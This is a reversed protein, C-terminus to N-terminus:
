IDEPYDKVKEIVKEQVKLWLDKDLFRAIWFYEKKTKKVCPPLVKWFSRVPPTKTELLMARYGRIELKNFLILNLIVIEKERDYKKIKIEIDGIDM